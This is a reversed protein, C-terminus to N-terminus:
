NPWQYANFEKNEREGGVKIYVPGISLPVIISIVFILVYQYTLV